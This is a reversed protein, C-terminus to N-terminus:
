MAEFDLEEDRERHLLKYTRDISKCLIRKRYEEHLEPGIVHPNVGLKALPKTDLRKLWLRELRLAEEYSLDVDEKWPISSPITYYGTNGLEVAGWIDLWRINVPKRWKKLPKFCKPCIGSGISNIEKSALQEAEEKIQETPEWAPADDWKGWYRSNIFAGITKENEYDWTRGLENAMRTNWSYKLFTPRTVYELKHYIQAPTAVYSYNVILDPCGLAQKLASKLERLEAWPIYDADILVNAHPNWKGNNVFKDCRAKPCTKGTFKCKNKQANVCIDGYWHWRLLGRKAFGGVRGRRGMRKGAIVEIIKDTSYRLGDKSYSLEKIKRYRDPYEIVLYGVMELQQIKPLWRSIRRNHAQSHKKGCEPCWDKGCLIKKAFHHEGTECETFTALSGCKYGPPPQEEPQELNTPQSVPLPFSVGVPERGSIGSVVVAEPTREAGLQTAVLNLNFLNDATFPINGNGLSNLSGVQCKNDEQKNNIQPQLVSM